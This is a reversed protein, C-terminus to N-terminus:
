AAGAAREAEDQHAPGAQPDQIGVWNVAAGSACLLAAILMALHFADTSAGRAGAKLEADADRRPANLPSVQERVEPLSVDVSPARDALSAYFATSVAIFIVSTALLPGIRSIANNIASALGSNGVPVSTMLATTLPAVLMSIGAGFLVMAPLVDIVFSAPPVLSAPNGVAALWAESSAPLRLFWLLGIAMIAPGIAMFRRPGYRGALAGFTTSLFALALGTPVNTLGSALASYGLTGQLFVAQFYSLAYLAGYVLLTSLNTVTFNRSSFLSPPVLPNPRSRML